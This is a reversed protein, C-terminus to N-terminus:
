NTVMALMQVEGLNSESSLIVNEQGPYIEYGSLSCLVFLKINNKRHNLSYQKLFHRAKTFCMEYICVCLEIPVKYFREQLIKVLRIKYLCNINSMKMIFNNVTTMLIYPNGLRKLSMCEKCKGYSSWYARVKPVHVLSIIVCIGIYQKIELKTVHICKEPDKQVSFLNTQQIIHEFFIM